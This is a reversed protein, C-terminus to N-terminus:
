DKQAATLEAKREEFLTLDLMASNIKETACFSKAKKLLDDLTKVKDKNSICKDFEAQQRATAQQNEEDSHNQYGNLPQSSVEESPSIEVEGDSLELGTIKNHLWKLCKREAKGILGDGEMGSNKKVPHTLTQSAAKGKYVWDMKTTVSWQGGDEKPLQHIFTPFTLDPITRLKGAFGEKTYYPKAALINVQNGMMSFGNLTAEIFCRRVTDEDYGKPTQSDRDTRFGIGNGQLFMIPRMIEKTMMATLKEFATAQIFAKEFPNMEDTMLSVEKLIETVSKSFVIQDQTILQRSPTSPKESVVELGTEANEDKTEVDSVIIQEEQNEIKKAM